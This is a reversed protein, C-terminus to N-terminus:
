KKFLMGLLGKKKPEFEAGPPLEPGPPPPMEGMMSPEPPMPGPPPMPARPPPMPGPPPMPKPMEMRPPGMPKPPPIPMPKKLAREVMNAVSLLASAIQQNQNGIKDMKDNLRKLQFAAGTKEEQAVEKSAQKVMANLQNISNKLEAMSALMEKELEGVPTALRQKVADIEDRLDSLIQHPIIEYSEDKIPKDAM